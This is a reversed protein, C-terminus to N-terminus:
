GGELDVGRQAPTGPPTSRTTSILMGGSTRAHASVAKRPANRAAKMASVALVILLVAVVLIRAIIWMSTMDYQSAATPSVQGKMQLVDLSFFAATGLCLVTGAAAFAAVLYEVLRDDAIAAIFFILYLALLPTVLVSAGGGLFGLRWAASHIRFPWTRIGLEVFPMLVLAVM